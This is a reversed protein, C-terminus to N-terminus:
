QVAPLRRVSSTHQLGYIYHTIGYPASQGWVIYIHQKKRFTSLM